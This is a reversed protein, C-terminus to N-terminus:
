VDFIIEEVQDIFTEFIDELDDYDDDSVTQLIAMLSGKVGEWKMLRMVRLLKDDMNNEGKTEGKTEGITLTLCGDIVETKAKM